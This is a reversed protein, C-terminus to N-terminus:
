KCESYKRLRHFQRLPVQDDALIYYTRQFIRSFLHDPRERREGRYPQLRRRPHGRDRRSAASQGHRSIRGARWASGSPLQLGPTPRFVFAAPIGLLQRAGASWGGRRVCLGASARRCERRTRASLSDERDTGRLNRAQGTRRGLQIGPSVAWTCKMSSPRPSPAGSRPTVRGTMVPPISWSTGSRARSTTARSEHQTVREAAPRAICKGYPDLLVKSPDFRLGGEPDFPGPSATPM